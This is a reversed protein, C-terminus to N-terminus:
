RRFNTGGKVDEDLRQQELAEEGPQLLIPVAATLIVLAAGAPLVWGPANVSGYASEDAVALAIDLLQPPLASPPKTVRHKVPAVVRPAFAAVQTVVLLAAILMSKM